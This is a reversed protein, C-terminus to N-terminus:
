MGGNVLAASEDSKGIPMWLSPSFLSRVPALDGTVCLLGDITRRHEGLFTIARERLLDSRLSSDIVRQLRRGPAFLRKLQAGYRRVVKTSIGDQRLAGQIAEAALEASALARYIGQGTLPDFYGAADGVLLIGAAGPKPVPRDFPGSARVGDLPLVGGLDPHPLAEVASRFFRSPDRALERRDRAAEVVLTANWVSGDQRIPVLGLTEKKGLVLTGVPESEPPLTVAGTLSVKFRRPRRGVLGLSASVVSRLGDAGVVVRASLTARLGHPGIVDVEPCHGDGSRARLVRVGERVHAGRRRAEDLLAKDLLLRSIGYGFVGEPYAGNASAERETVLRWGHITAPGLGRVIDLLALRKLLRLAGPNLFEGCPKPRPFRARDLLEVKLGSSALLGALTSGAPGGGVILVDPPAVCPRERTM